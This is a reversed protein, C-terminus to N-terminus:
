FRPFANIILTVVHVYNNEFLNCVNCRYAIKQLRQTYGIGRALKIDTFSVKNRVYISLCIVLIQFLSKPVVYIAAHMM